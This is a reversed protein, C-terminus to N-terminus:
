QSTFLCPWECLLIINQLEMHRLYTPYRFGDGFRFGDDYVVHMCTSAVFAHMHYMITTTIGLVVTFGLVVVVIYWM